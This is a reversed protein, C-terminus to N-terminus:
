VKKNFINLKEKSLNVYTNNAEKSKRYDILEQKAENVKTNFLNSIQKELEVIGNETALKIFEDHNNINKLIIERQELREDINDLQDNKLLELLQLSIDKYLDIKDKM